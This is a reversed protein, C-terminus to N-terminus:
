REFINAFFVVLKFYNISSAGVAFVILKKGSDYLAPMEKKFWGLKTMQGALCWGGFVIADYESLNMKSGKSFEVCECGAEQSIWEAYKKTFGTQSNYIVIAKM